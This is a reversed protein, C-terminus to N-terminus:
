HPASFESLPIADSHVPTGRTTYYFSKGWAIRGLHDVRLRIPLLLRM